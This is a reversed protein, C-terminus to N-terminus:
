TSRGIVAAEDSPNTALDVKGKREFPAHYANVEWFTLGFSPLAIVVLGDGL